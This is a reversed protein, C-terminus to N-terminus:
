TDWTILMHRYSRSSVVVGVMHLFMTHSILLTTQIQKM